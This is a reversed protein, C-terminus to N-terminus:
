SSLCISTYMINNYHEYFQQYTKCTSIFSFSKITQMKLSILSWCVLFKCEKTIMDMYNYSWYRYITVPVSLKNFL